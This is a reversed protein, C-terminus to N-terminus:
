NPLRITITTGTGVESNISIEGKLLDIRNKVIYLGVGRGHTEPHFKQYMKFMKDKVKDLNIGIGNDVITITTFDDSQTVNVSISLEREKDRFRIANSILHYFIDNLFPRYTKISTKKPIDITVKPKIELFKENFSEIVGNVVKKIDVKKYDSLDPEVDNLVTSLDRITQDIKFSSRRIHKIIEDTSINTNDNEYFKSYGIIQTLPERLNHSIVSNFEQLNKNRLSLKSILQDKEAQHKLMRKSERFFYVLCLIIIILISFVSLFILRTRNIKESAKQQQLLLQNEKSRIEALLSSKIKEVNNSFEQTVISDKLLQYANLSQAARQYQQKATYLEYELYCAELLLDNADVGRSLTKSRNMYYFGSDLNGLRLYFNSLKLHSQIVGRVDGVEQGLKLSLQQLQVAKIFAGKKFNIESLGAYANALGRKHNTELAMQLANEFHYKASDIRNGLLYAEAINCTIIVPKQNLILSAAKKAQGYYKLASDYLKKKKFVEGINNNLRAYQLPYQEAGQSLALSYYSLAQDQLGIVWFSSGKNTTARVLGATYGMSDSLRISEDIYKVAASPESIIYEFSINNLLDIYVSDVTPYEDIRKILSDRLSEQAIGKLILLSLVVYLTAKM